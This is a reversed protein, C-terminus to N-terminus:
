PDKFKESLSPYTCNVIAELTNDFETILHEHPIEIEAEGDNPEVLKGDRVKLIWDVFEKLQNTDM